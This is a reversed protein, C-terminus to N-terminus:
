IGSRTSVLPVFKSGKREDLINYIMQAQYRLCCSMEHSLHQVTWCFFFMQKKNEKHATQLGAKKVGEAAGWHEFTDEDCARWREAGRPVTKSYWVHFYVVVVTSTTEFHHFMPEAHINIKFSYRLITFFSLNVSQKLLFVKRFHCYFLCPPFFITINLSKEKTMEPVTILWDNCTVINWKQSLSKSTNKDFTWQKISFWQNRRVKLRVSEGSHLKISCWNCLLFLDHCTYLSEAQLRM